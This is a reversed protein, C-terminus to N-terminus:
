STIFKSIIERIIDASIGTMKSVDEVSMTDIFIDVIKKDFSNLNDTFMKLKEIIKDKYEILENRKNELDEIDNNINQLNLLLDNVNEPLKTDNEHSIDMKKIEMFNKSYDIIITSFGQSKYIKRPAGINSIVMGNSSVLGWRELLELQKNIAQHSVDMMKSLELAYSDYNALMKLLERRTNNELATLIYWLDDELFIM